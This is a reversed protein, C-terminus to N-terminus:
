GPIPYMKSETRGRHRELYKYRKIAFEAMRKVIHPLDSRNWVSDFEQLNRLRSSIVFGSERHPDLCIDEYEVAVKGQLATEILEHTSYAFFKKVDETSEASNVSERYQPRLEQEYKSFSIQKTM